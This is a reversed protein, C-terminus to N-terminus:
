WTVNKEKPEDSLRWYTYRGEGFVTGKWIQWRYVWLSELWRPLLDIWRDGSIGCLDCVFWDTIVRFERDVFNHGIEPTTQQAAIGLQYLPCGKRIKLGM